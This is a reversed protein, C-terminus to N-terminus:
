RGAPDLPGTLAQEMRAADETRGFTRVYDDLARQASAKEGKALFMYVMERQPAPDKPHVLMAWRLAEEAQDWSATKQAVRAFELLVWLERPELRRAERLQELAESWRGRM